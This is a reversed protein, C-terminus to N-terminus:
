HARRWGLLVCTVWVAAVLPLAPATPALLLTAALFGAGLLAIRWLGTAYPIALAVAALALAELGVAPPFAHALIRGAELPSAVGALLSHTSDVRAGAGFPLGEGRLGAAVTAVAVAALAQAARRLPDRVPQLALPM